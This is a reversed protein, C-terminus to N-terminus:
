GFINFHVGAIGLIFTIAGVAFCYYSFIRFNSHKSIYLLLKMAAIGVIFAVVTGIIYAAVDGSPIHALTPLEKINAGLIAPISLLFSFKVAFRRDFGQTLGGTITSGSRSLGPLVACMQCIGVILANKPTVSGPKTKGTEMKDSVFLILGNIILILGVAWTYSSIIEVYDSVLAAIVLPLTAILLMIVTREEVTYYELKFKGTFVKKLMTFFAKVLKVIDKRFIVFVAALTGLHLLVSFAMYDTEINKAGFINQFIALHGSSSIPLFEAAGQIIGCIIAFIISM